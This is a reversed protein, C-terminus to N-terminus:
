KTVNRVFVAYPKVIEAVLGIPRMPMETSGNQAPYGTIELCAKDVRGSIYKSGPAGRSNGLAVRTQSLPLEFKEERLGRIVVAYRSGRLNIGAPIPEWSIGDMSFEEARVSLAFHKSEMPEMCLYITGGEAEFSKAFPQVVTTPHCTSGGYGWFAIGEDEIEKLKRKLITDLSESAHNGVKMYLVRSGPKIILSM